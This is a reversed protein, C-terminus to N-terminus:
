WVCLFPTLAAYQGNSLFVDRSDKLIVNGHGSDRASRFLDFKSQPICGALLFIITESWQGVRFSIKEENAESNITRIRKLINHVLYAM